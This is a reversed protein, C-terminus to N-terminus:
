DTTFSIDKGEARAQRVLKQYEEPITNLPVIFGNVMVMEAFPNDAQIKKTSFEKDWVDLKLL